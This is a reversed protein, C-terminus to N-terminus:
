RLFYAATLIHNIYPIKDERVKIKIVRDSETKLMEWAGADIRISHIKAGTQYSIFWIPIRADEDMYRNVSVRKDPLDQRLDKM